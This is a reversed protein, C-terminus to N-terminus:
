ALGKSVLLEAILIANGAAGRITNHSLLNYRLTRGDLRLRGVTTAMGRGTMRDLRPQPRDPEDRLVVPPNPASPLGPLPELSAIAARVEELDTDRSLEAFVAESHGDLVGVRACSALVTFDAQKFEGQYSGLIKLTERAIKEEENRIFPIVNDLIAMSPVGSYGAGSVAQMTSVYVKELGIRRQLGALTMVLGVTSCNACSVIFGADPNRIAELHHHNVEPVILPIQPEMRHVATDAVVRLGRASLAKEIEFAAESPVASFVISAGTQAIVDADLPLLRVDRMREPIPTDRYWKAAEAYTKGVSRESAALAVVDFWPHEALMSVYIQGVMGTAGLVAVKRKQM